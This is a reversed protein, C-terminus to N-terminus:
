VCKVNRRILHYRAKNKRALKLEFLYDSEPKEPFLLALKYALSDVNKNFYTDTMADTFADFRVEYKPISTALLSEDAAYINGRVAEIERFNRTLSEEKAIWKEREFIQIKVTQAIIAIAFLCVATYVIYVRSFITRKQGKM